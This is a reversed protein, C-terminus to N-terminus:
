AFILFFIKIMEAGIVSQRPCIAEHNPGYILSLEDLEHFRARRRRRRRRARPNCNPGALIRLVFKQWAGDKAGEVASGYTSSWRSEKM